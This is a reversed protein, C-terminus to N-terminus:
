HSWSTQPIQKSFTALVAFAQFLHRKQHAVLFRFTDGLKLTIMTTISISTKTRNLDVKRASKLLELLEHQQKIFTHICNKDLKAHIPNKDKFTKMKKMGKKPEMSKVFYNGMLGLKFNVSAPFPSQMIRKRIEPLYYDGYLNLHEVCELANWSGPFPRHTLQLLDYGLLIEAQEIFEKTQREMSNILEITPTNM